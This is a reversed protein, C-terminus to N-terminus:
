RLMPKGRKCLQIALGWPDRMMILHTGDDFKDDSIFSAGSKELRKRDSDPSESVFALHVILPNMNRYDPVQDVPNKYVEIMISGSDDALFHMFPPESSQKVVKLGMNDVYWTSMKSPEEVNIAFHEIKM